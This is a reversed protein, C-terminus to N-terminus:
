DKSNLIILFLLILFGLMGAIFLFRQRGTVGHARLSETAPSHCWHLWLARHEPDAETAGLIFFYKPKGHNLFERELKEVAEMMDMRRCDFRHGNWDLVIALATAAERSITEGPM